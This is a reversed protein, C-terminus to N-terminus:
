SVQAVNMADIFHNAERISAEMERILVAIDAEISALNGKLSAIARANLNHKLFLVQDHFAALVPDMKAEARKMARLLQGYQARTQQLQRESSRRLPASTYQEIEAEWEDFLAEAVDEVSEVRQHVETARAESQEYEAELQDYKEQLAGGKFGTVAIFKELADKFQEAAQEQSDRAAEVRDVLIDRKPFGLREMVNYYPSSCASLLVITVAYGCARVARGPQFRGILAM